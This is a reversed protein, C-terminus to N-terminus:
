LELILIRSLHPSRFEGIVVEEVRRKRDRRFASRKGHRHSRDGLPEPRRGAREIVAECRAIDQEALQPQARHEVKLAPNRRREVGAICQPGGQVHGGPNAVM